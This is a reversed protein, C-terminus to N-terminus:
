NGRGIPILGGEIIIYSRPTIAKPPEFREPPVSAWSEENNLPEVRFGDQEEQQTKEHRNHNGGWGTSALTAIVLFVLFLIGWGVEGVWGESTENQKKREM